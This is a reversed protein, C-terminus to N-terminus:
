TYLAYRIVFLLSIHFIHTILPRWSVMKVVSGVQVRWFRGFGLLFRFLGGPGTDMPVWWFGGAGVLIWRSGM